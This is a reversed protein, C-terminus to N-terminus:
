QAVLQRRWSCDSAGGLIAVNSAICAAPPLTAAQITFKGNLPLLLEYNQGEYYHVDM